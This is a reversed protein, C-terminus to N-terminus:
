ALKEICIRKIWINMGRLGEEITKKGAKKSNKPHIKALKKSAVAIKKSNKQWKEQM